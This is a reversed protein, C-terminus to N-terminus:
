VPVRVRPFLLGLPSDKVKEANPHTSKKFPSVRCYATLMSGREQLFTEDVADVQAV